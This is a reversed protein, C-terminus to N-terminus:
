AMRHGGSILYIRQQLQGCPSFYMSLERERNERGGQPYRTHLLFCSQPYAHPTSLSGPSPARPKPAAEQPKAPPKASSRPRRLDVFDPSEISIEGLNHGELLATTAAHWRHYLTLAYALADADEMVCPLGKAQELMADLASPLARRCTVACIHSPGHHPTNFFTHTSHSSSSLCRYSM